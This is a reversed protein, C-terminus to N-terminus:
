AGARKLPAYDLHLIKEGQEEFIVTVQNEGPCGVVRGRGFSQHIVEEGPTFTPAERHPVEIELPEALELLEDPIEKLFRSPPNYQTKGWLNRSWAHTLYLRKKARTIGVYCLRREEETESIDTLSRIHPFIGEEMGGIFVVPFELGKTNHLTMLTVGTEKQDYNDIDALLSIEALFEELNKYPFNDQFEKIVSIFEKVNEARGLAEVTREEELSKLYGVEELMKEALKVLDNEENLKGIKELLETIKEIEKQARPQLHPNEGVRKLAEFFSVDFDRAFRDLKEESTKGIGRKPRNLIRKLSVGDDPNVILRLYSLVDKIEQREYFKVGGVIKYPLGSRVFVEEFVRSQANTRYFIAFDKYTREEARKLNEIEAVVYAAEDHESQGRYCVLPAGGSNATWLNKPKRGRNNVIVKNAAELIHETSRYNQELNVIKAEPFDEEFELINRIDAGRFKYISQDPDGVVCLNRHKSALLNVLEYQAKNTDQYEDVLIYRFKDQYAELVSPFLKFLSVTHTILDDFDLANSKFLREQYLQYVSAVIEERYTQAKRAYSAADILECKAWSIASAMAPAPNRKIDLDLDNICSTILRKQDADDYIVFNKKFGLREVNSRLIKVCTAHFTGVWMGRGGPGILSFIRQKMEDAAKNTFTIALINRPDTKKEEILYAVRHALIRTKGSGAGALVLIPGESHTVAEEQVPNLSELIKV